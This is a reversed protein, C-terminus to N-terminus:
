HSKLGKKSNKGGRKNNGNFKNKNLFKKKKENNQRFGKKLVKKQDNSTDREGRGMNEFAKNIKKKLHKNKEGMKNNHLTRKEENNDDKNQENANKNNKKKVKASKINTEHNQKEDGKQGLKANSRKM